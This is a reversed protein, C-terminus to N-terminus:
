HIDLWEGVCLLWLLGRGRCAWGGWGGGGCGRVEGWGGVWVGGRIKGGGGGSFGGGKSVGVGAGVRVALGVVFDGGRNSRIKNEVLLPRGGWGGMEWVVWCGRTWGGGEWWKV